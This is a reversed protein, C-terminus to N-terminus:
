LPRVLDNVKFKGWLSEWKWFGVVRETLSKEICNRMAQSLYGRFNPTYIFQYVGLDSVAEYLQYRIASTQFQDIVDHYSFDDKKTLGLEIFWQMFRLGRLDLERSGPAHRKGAAQSEKVAEVLYENRKQRKQRAEANAAYTQYTIWAVGAVCLVAWVPGAIDLVSDRALFAALGSTGVWLLMPFLVGGAGFWAFMVLPILAMSVIFAFIAPITFVAILGAGPFLLGLSGARVSPSETTQFSYLGVAAM